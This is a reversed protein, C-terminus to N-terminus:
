SEVGFENNFNRYRQFWLHNKSHHNSETLKLCIIVISCNPYDIPCGLAECINKNLPPAQKFLDVSIIVDELNGIVVAASSLNQSM